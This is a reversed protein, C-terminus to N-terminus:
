NVKINKLLNALQEIGLKLKKFDDNHRASLFNAIVIM